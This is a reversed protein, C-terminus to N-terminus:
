GYVGTMEALSRQTQKRRNDEIRRIVTSSIEEASAGPQTIHINGITVSNDQSGGGSSSSSFRRMGREYDALPAEMYQRGGRGHKLATAFQDINQAGMAGPYNGRITGAYYSGFEQLSGFSKYETSGPIRIGALNNLSQAGRNTFNGTEHAWQAYLIDAPVNLQSSLSQALARAQSSIGGGGANGSSGGSSHMNSILDGLLGIGGGILAGGGAGIPGGFAGIAAGVGAGGLAGGIAGSVPVLVKEIKLLM